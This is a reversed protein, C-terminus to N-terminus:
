GWSRLSDFLSKKRAVVRNKGKRKAEYLADDARKVLSDETDTPMLETLGCSLTFRVRERKGLLEYEYANTAIRELLQSLRNEVQGASASALLLVFEEGGYRAVFDTQRLGQTLAQAACLLVRDGVQHGHTDNLKKFDDIDLMAIALPTRAERAAAVWRTLTQQFRRRNGIRTLPDLAAEEEAESLRAQLSEIHSTLQAQAREDRAQKQEISQRLSEVEHQLRRKLDRIDDLQALGHMRESAAALEAHFSANEGLSFSAAERLIRIVEALENERDAYYAQSASFHQRCATVCAETVRPIELHRSPDRIVIVYEDLKARFATVAAPDAAPTLRGIVGLLRDLFSALNERDAPPDSRTHASEVHDVAAALPGAEAPGHDNGRLHHPRKLGLEVIDTM